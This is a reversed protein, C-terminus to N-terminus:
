APTLSVLLTSQGATAGSRAKQQTLVVAETGAPTQASWTSATLGAGASQDSVAVALPPSQASAWAGVAASVAAGDGPATTVTATCQHPNAIDPPDLDIRRQSDIQRVWDGDDDKFGGKQAVAHVDAGHMVPLCVDTLAAVADTAIPPAPKAAPPAARAALPFAAAALCAALTLHFEKKM